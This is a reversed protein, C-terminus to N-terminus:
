GGGPATDGHETLWERWQRRSTIHLQPYTDSM